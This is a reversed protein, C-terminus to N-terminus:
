ERVLVDSKSLTQSTQQLVLKVEFHHALRPIRRLAQAFHKLEPRIYDDGVVFYKSQGCRFCLQKHLTYRIM